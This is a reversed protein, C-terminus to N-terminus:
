TKKRTFFLRKKRTIGERKLAKCIASVACKFEKAMEKQIADPNKTVYAKLKEPDIKKFGRNLPKNSLDGTEAYQKEWRSVSTKGVGFVKATEILTHGEMRYRVAAERLDKSRYMSEIKDYRKGKQLHILQIDSSIFSELLEEFGNQSYNEFEEKELGSNFLPRSM